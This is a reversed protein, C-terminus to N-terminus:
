EMQCSTTNKKTRGNYQQYFIREDKLEMPDMSVQDFAVQVILAEGSFGRHVRKNSLDITRVSILLLNLVTRCEQVENQQQGMGAAVAYDKRNWRDWM